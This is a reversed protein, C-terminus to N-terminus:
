HGQINRQRHHLLGQGLTTKTCWKMDTHTIQNNTLCFFPLWQMGKKHPGCLWTNTEGEWHLSLHGPKWFLDRLKWIQKISWATVCANQQSRQSFWFLSSTFMLFATKFVYFLTSQVYYFKWSLRLLDFHTEWIKSSYSSGNLAPTNLAVLGLKFTIQRWTCLSHRYLALGYINATNHGTYPRPQM